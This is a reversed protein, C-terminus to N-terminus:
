PKLGATKRLADNIQTQWGKPYEAKFYDIVKNDLHINVRTKSTGKPRGRGRVIAPIVEIAPRMKALEANTMPPNNKDSNAAKNIAAEEEPTNLPIKKRM